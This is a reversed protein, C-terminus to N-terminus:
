ASARILKEAAAAEALWLLGGNAPRVGQAPYRRPQYPGELVEALIDAKDAGAVLFLVEAAANLVPLTLTVREVLPPPPITHEVPVAWRRGARLASSGPFLSATHGDTGLGLLILDFRPLGKGFFGQLDEEYLHAAEQAPKEGAMRHINEPPLPLQRFLTEQAMGYNSEAAEPPVCREDGWFFHVRRWDIKEAALCAYMKKPTSGGALVLTFREASGLREEMRRLCYGAAREALQRVDPLIEIQPM